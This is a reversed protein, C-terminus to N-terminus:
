KMRQCGCFRPQCSLFKRRLPPRADHSLAWDQGKSVYLAPFGYLAAFRSSTPASDLPPEHVNVHKNAGRDNSPKDSGEHVGSATCQLLSEGCEQPTPVKVRYISGPTERRGGGERYGWTFPNGGGQLQIKMGDRDNAVSLFFFLFM